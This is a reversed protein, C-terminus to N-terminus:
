SAREGGRWLDFEEEELSQGLVLPGRDCGGGVGLSVHALRDRGSCPSGRLPLICPASLLARGLAEPGTGEDM